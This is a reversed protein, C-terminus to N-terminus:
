AGKLQTENIESDNFDWSQHATRSHFLKRNHAWWKLRKLVLAEEEESDNRMTRRRKCGTEPNNKSRHLSCSFPCTVQWACKTRASRAPVFTFGAGRWQFSRESKVKTHSKVTAIKRAKALSIPRGSKKAEAKGIKKPVNHDPVQSKNRLRRFVLKKRKKIGLMAKYEKSSLGHEVPETLVGIDLSVLAQLYTKLLHQNRTFYFRKRKDSRKAAPVEQKAEKFAPEWKSSRLYTTLQFLTMKLPKVEECVRRANRMNSAEALSQTEKLILETPTFNAAGMSDPLRNAQGLKVLLDLSELHQDGFPVSLVKQNKAPAAAGDAVEDSHDGLAEEFAAHVLRGLMQVCSHVMKPPVNGNTIEALLPGNMAATGPARDWEMISKTAGIFAKLDVHYHKGTTSLYCVGGDGSSVLQFKEIIVSSKTFRPPGSWDIDQDQINKPWRNVIRFWVHLNARGGKLNMAEESPEVISMGMDSDQGRSSCSRPATASVAFMFYKKVNDSANEIIEQPIVAQPRVVNHLLHVDMVFKAQKRESMKASYLNKHTAAQRFHPPFCTDLVDKLADDASQPSEGKAKSKKRAREGVDQSSNADSGQSEDDGDAADKGGGGHHDAGDGSSSGDSDDSNKDENEDGGDDHDAADGGHGGDVGASPPHGDGPGPGAPVYPDPLDQYQTFRDGRYIVSIALTHPVSSDVEGSPKTMEVIKPHYQLNLTQLCKAATNTHELKEIFKICGQSDHTFQEVEARRSTNSLFALSHHHAKLLDQHAAAHRQEISTEEIKAFQIKARFTNVEDLGHLEFSDAEMAALWQQKVPDTLHKRVQPHMMAKDADSLENWQCVCDAYVTLAITVNGHGGGLLRNPLVYLSEARLSLQVHIESKFLGFQLVLRSRSAGDLRAPFNAHLEAESLALSKDIFGDMEGACVEALLCGAMPCRFNKPIVGAERMTWRHCKCSRIYNEIHGNVEIGQWLLEIFGKTLPNRIGKTITKRHVGLEAASPEADLTRLEGNDDDDDGVFDFPWYHEAINWRKRIWILAKCLITWARGGELIPPGSEFMAVLLKGQATKELGEQIFEDRTCGYHFYVCFSNLFKSEDPWSDLVKLTHRQLKEVLHFFGQIGFANSTDIVGANPLDPPDPLDPLDADPLHPLDPLDADPLHPLDDNSEHVTQASAHGSDVWHPFLERAKTRCRRLKKETGGDTVWVFPVDSMLKGCSAWDDTELRYAHVTGHFRHALSAKRQAMIVPPLCHRTVNEKIVRCCSETVAWTDADFPEVQKLAKMRFVAAAAPLLSGSKISYYENMLMNKGKLQSADVLPFICAEPDSILKNHRERMVAMYSCDVWLRARSETSRSIFDSNEIIEHLVPRIAPPYLSVTKEMMSKLAQPKGECHRRILGFCLKSCHFLYATQYRGQGNSHAGGRGDIKKWMWGVDDLSIARSLHELWAVYSAVSNKLSEDDLDENLNVEGLVHQYMTKVLNALHEFQSRCFLDSQAEEPGPEPDLRSSATAPLVPGQMNILGQVKQFYEYHEANKQLLRDCSLVITSWDCHTVLVSVPHGVFLVNLPFGLNGIEFESQWRRWIDGMQEDILQSRLRGPEHAKKSLLTEAAGEMMSVVDYRRMNQNQTRSLLLTERWQSDPFGASAKVTLGYVRSDPAFYNKLRCLNSHVIIKM